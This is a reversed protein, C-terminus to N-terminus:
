HRTPLYQELEVRMIAIVDQVEPELEKINIKHMRTESDFECLEGCYACLTVDGAAPRTNADANMATTADLLTECTPCQCPELRITM